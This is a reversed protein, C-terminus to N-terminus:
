FAGLWHISAVSALEASRNFEAALESSVGAEAALEAPRNFEATLEAAARAKAAAMAAHARNGVATSGEAFFHAIATKPSRAKAAALGLIPQKLM